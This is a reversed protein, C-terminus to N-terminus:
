TSPPNPPMLLLGIYEKPRKGSFFEVVPVIMSKAPGDPVANIAVYAEQFGWEGMRPSAGLSATAVYSRIAEKMSEVNGKVFARMAQLYAITAGNSAKDFDEKRSEYLKDFEAVQNGLLYLEALSLANEMVSPDQEFARRQADIASTFEGLVGHCHAKGGLLRVNDPDIALGAAIYELAFQFQKLHVYQSVKEVIELMKLRRDQEENIRVIKSVDDKVVSQQEVIVKVENQLITKLNRLEDLERQYDAKFGQISKFGFYGFIAGVVGIFGILISVIVNISQLNSAYAEKLLDKEVRYNVQDRRLIAVDDKGAKMEKGLENLSKQVEEITTKEAPTAGATSLICAAFSFALVAILKRM